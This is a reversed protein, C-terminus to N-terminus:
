VPLRETDPSLTLPSISGPLRLLIVISPVILWFPLTTRTTLCRFALWVLVGISILSLGIRWASFWVAMRPEYVLQVFPTFTVQLTYLFSHLPGAPYDGLGIAPGTSRAFVLYRAAYYFLFVAAFPVLRRLLRGASHRAQDNSPLLRDALVLLLPVVVAQERSFLAAAFLVVSAIYWNRGPRLWAYVAALSWAVAISTERGTIPYVCQAAIPHLAFLAAAVFAPVRRIAFVPLTLLLYALAATLGMVAVNFAHYPMPRDGHLGKQIVLTVRSLPRYYDLGAWHPEAFVQALDGLSSPAQQNVILVRDDYIFESDISPLYALFILLFLALLVIIQRTAQQRDAV